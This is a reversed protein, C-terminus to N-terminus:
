VFLLIRMAPFFRDWAVAVGRALIVTRASSLLSQDFRSRKNPEFPAQPPQQHM